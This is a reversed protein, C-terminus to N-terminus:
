PCTGFSACAFDVLLVWAWGWGIAAIDLSGVLISAIAIGSKRHSKIGLVLALVGLISTIALPIATAFIEFDFSYGRTRSVLFPGVLACLLGAAAITLGFNASHKGSM